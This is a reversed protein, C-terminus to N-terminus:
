TSGGTVLSSWLRLYAKIAKHIEFKEAITKKAASALTATKRPDRLVDTMVEAAHDPDSLIIGNEGNHILEDVGPVSTTVIPVGRAMCELWTLPPALIAKHNFCPSLLLSSIRVVELFQPKSRLPIVRIRDEEFRTYERDFHMGKFAFVVVVDRLEHLIRKAVQVSFLFEPRGVVANIFGSWLVVKAGAALGLRSRIRAEDNTKDRYPDLTVAWPITELARTGLGLSRLKEALCDSGTVIADFPSLSARLFEDYIPHRPDYHLQFITKAVEGRRFVMQIPGFNDILHVVDIDYKKILKLISTYAGAFLITKLIYNPELKDGLEVPFIRLTPVPCAGQPRRGTISVMIIQEVERAIAPIADLWFNDGHATPKWEQIPTLRSGLLMLRM